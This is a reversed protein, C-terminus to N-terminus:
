PGRNMWRFLPILPLGWAVGVIAFFALQALWFRPIHDAIVVAVGVYAALFGLVGFMGILKRLRAPM